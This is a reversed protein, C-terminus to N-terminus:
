VRRGRGERQEEDGGAAARASLGACARGRRACGLKALGLALADLLRCGVDGEVELAGTGAPKLAAETVKTEVSSDKTSPVAGPAPVSSSRVRSRPRVQTRSAAGATGRPRGPDPVRATQPVRKAEGECPKTKPTPRQSVVSPPPRQIRSAWGLPAIRESAVISPCTSASTPLPVAGPLRPGYTTSRRARTPPLQCGTADSGLTFRASGVSRMEVWAPLAATSSPLLTRRVM